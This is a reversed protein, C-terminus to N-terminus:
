GGDSGNSSENTISRVRAGLSIAQRVLPDELAAQLPDGAALAEKTTMTCRVRIKRGLVQGIIEEVVARNRPDEIRERHFAYPFGLVLTSDESGIPGASRLLAQVSRNRNGCTEIIEGWRLRAESFLVGGAVVSSAVGDSETTGDPASPAGYSVVLEPPSRVASDATEVV